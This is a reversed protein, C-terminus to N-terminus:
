DYFGNEKLIKIIEKLQYEKLENGPHPKHLIIPINDKKFKVRSGSARGKNSTEFGLHELLSQLEDFTFDKPMGTLRELLKDKKSM